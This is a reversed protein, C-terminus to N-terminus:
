QSPNFHQRADVRGIVVRVVYTGIEELLLLLYSCKFQVYVHSAKTKQEQDNVELLDKTGDVGRSSYM